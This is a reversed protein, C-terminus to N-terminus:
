VIDQKRLNCAESYLHPHPAFCHGFASAALSRKRLGKLNKWIPFIGSEKELRGKESLELSRWGIWILLIGPFVNWGSVVMQKKLCFSKSKRQEGSDSLWGMVCSNKGAVHALLHRLFSVIDTGQITQGTDSYLTQGRPFGAQWLCINM